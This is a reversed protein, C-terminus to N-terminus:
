NDIALNAVLNQWGTEINLFGLPSFKLGVEGEEKKKKNRVKTIKEKGEKM